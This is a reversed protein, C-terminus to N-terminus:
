MGWHSDTITTATGRKQIDNQGVCEQSTVNTMDITSSTDLDPTSEPIIQLMARFIQFKSGQLPKTFFHEYMEGTPCYEPYLERNEICDKIFFYRVRITNKLKTRSEKGNKEM